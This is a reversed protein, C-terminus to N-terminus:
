DPFLIMFQDLATTWDQIPRTWQKAVRNLALYFVKPISEDNPFAKGTRSCRVCPTM